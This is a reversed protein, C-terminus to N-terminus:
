REYVNEMPKTRWKMEGVFTDRVYACAMSNFGSSSLCGLNGGIPISLIEDGFIHKIRMTLKDHELSPTYDVYECGRNMLSTASERLFDDCRSEGYPSVALRVVPTGNGVTEFEFQVKM